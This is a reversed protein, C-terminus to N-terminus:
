VHARGIKEGDTLQLYNMVSKGRTARKGEAIDYMKIQYAKGKDTFFLLDAHTSATLAMTIFDEEKTDLDVVGVGGRKQTKFEEPNTRKIYGGKTYVLVAEEEAILDEPNFDKIGYKVIKTRRADGYKEKVELLEDKIIKFIKKDSALIARLSEILAQVVKLENEIKLRELGALRQLKMELIATAQLDSFKFKKMLAGHAEATDKSARILKIIEDIHDLAMKLGLLIHERDLAKRLDYECRRRVVVHRHKVFEVLATKLSITQPIGDVLAVMNFHFTSEIDTYKYLANLLKEPQTGSKLDFVIRVDKLDSSCM